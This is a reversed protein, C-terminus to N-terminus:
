STQFKLVPRSLKFFQILLDQRSGERLSNENMYFEFDSLRRSSKKQKNFEPKNNIRNYYEIVYKGKVTIGNANINFIEEFM